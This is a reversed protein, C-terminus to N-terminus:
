AQASFGPASAPQLVTISIKAGECKNIRNNIIRTIKPGALSPSTPPASPRAIRSKLFAIFSGSCDGGAAFAALAGAGVATVPDSVVTASPLASFGAYRADM